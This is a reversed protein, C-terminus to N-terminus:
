IEILLGDFFLSWFVSTPFRKIQLQKYKMLMIKVHDSISISLFFNIQSTLLRGITM